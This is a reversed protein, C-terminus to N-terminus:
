FVSAEKERAAARAALVEMRCDDCMAFGATVQPVWIVKLGCEHCVTRVHATEVQPIMPMQHRQQKDRKMAAAVLQIAHTQRDPIPDFRIKLM